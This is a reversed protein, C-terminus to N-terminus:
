DIINIAELAEIAKFDEINRTVLTLNHIIATAAIVADALKIRHKKKIEIAKDAIDNDLDYINGLDILLKCKEFGDVTHKDWGLFEIKTIISINFASNIILSNIFEQANKSGATHYILINTDILYESVPM